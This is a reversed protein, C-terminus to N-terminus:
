ELNKREWHPLNEDDEDQEPEPNAAAEEAALREAEAAERAKQEDKALKRNYMFLALAGFMVGDMMWKEYKEGISFKTFHRVLSYAIIFVGMSGIIIMIAKRSLKM